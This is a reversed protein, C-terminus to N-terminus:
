KELLRRVDVTLIPLLITACRSAGRTTLGFHGLLGTLGAFDIQYITVDFSEAEHSLRIVKVLAQQIQEIRQASSTLQRNLDKCVAELREIKIKTKSDAAGQAKARVYASVYEKVAWGVIVLAPFALDVVHFPQTDTPVGRLIFYQGYPVLEDRVKDRVQELPLM